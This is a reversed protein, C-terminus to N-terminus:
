SPTVLDGSTLVYPYETIQDPLVNTSTYTYTTKKAFDGAVAGAPYKISSTVRPPTNGDYTNKTFEFLGSRGRLLQWDALVTGSDYGLSVGNSDVAADILDADVNYTGPTLKILTSIDNNTYTFRNAITHREFYAPLQDIGARKNFGIKEEANGNSVYFHTRESPYKSTNLSIRIADLGSTKSATFYQAFHTDANLAAVIEFTTVSSASVAETTVDVTISTWIKFNPDHAVNLTLTASTNSDADNGSLNYPGPTWSQVVDRGRGSNPRLKFSPSYQRDALLLNGIFEEAFVNQFYM